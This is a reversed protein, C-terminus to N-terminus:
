NFRVRLSSYFLGFSSLILILIYTYLNDGTYPNSITLAKFDDDGTLVVKDEDSYTNTITFGVEMDGEIKTEYYPVKVEKITYVIKKGDKYVDLDKFTYSWNNGENLEISSHFKGDAYLIVTIAKPKEVSSKEWVKTVSVERKEDSYKNIMKVVQEKTLVDEIFGTIGLLNQYSVDRLMKPSYVFLQMDEPHKNSDSILFYFLEAYVKPVKTQGHAGYWHKAYNGFSDGNGSSIIYGTPSDEDYIYERNYFKNYLKIYKNGDGEQWLEGNQNYSVHFIKTGDLERVTEYTTIGANLYNKLAIETIFRIEAISLDSFREDESVLYRHYIIDLVKDYLEQNTLTQDSVDFDLITETNVNIRNGSITFGEDDVDTEQKTFDRIDDPTLVKGNYDIGDPTAMGQNICYTEYSVSNIEVYYLPTRNDGGHNCPYDGMDADGIIEEDIIVEVEFEKDLAIEYGEPAKVEHLVYKGAPLMVEYVSGDSVWEYLVNDFSDIIQLVAGVILEDKENVKSISVKTHQVQIEDNDVVDESLIEENNDIEEENVSNVSNIDLENANIDTNFLFLSVFIIFTCLVLKKM